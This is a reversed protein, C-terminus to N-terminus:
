IFTKLFVIGNKIFLIIEDFIHKNEYALQKSELVFIEEELFCICLRSIYGTQIASSILNGIRQQIILFLEEAEKAEDIPAVTNEAVAMQYAAWYNPGLGDFDLASVAARAEPSIEAM